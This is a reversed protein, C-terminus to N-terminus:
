IKIDVDTLSSVVIYYTGDRVESSALAVQLVM